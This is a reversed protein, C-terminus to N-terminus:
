KDCLIPLDGAVFENSFLLLLVALNKKFMKM